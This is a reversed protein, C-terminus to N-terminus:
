VYASTSDLLSHWQPVLRALMGTLAEDVSQSLNAHVPSGVVGPLSEGTAYNDILMYLDGASVGPAHVSCPQTTPVGVESANTEGIYM